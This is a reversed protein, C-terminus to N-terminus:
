KKDLQIKFEFLLVNNPNKSSFLYNDEDVNLFHGNYFIIHLYNGTNKNNKIHLINSNNKDNSVASVDYIENPFATYKLGLYYGDACKLTIKDKFFRKKVPTGDDHQKTPKELYELLFVEAENKKDSLYIFRSLHDLCMYLGNNNKILVKKPSFKIDIEKEIQKNNKKKTDHKIETVLFYLLLIVITISLLIGGDM